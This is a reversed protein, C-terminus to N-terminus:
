GRERREGVDGVHLCLCRWWSMWWRVVRWGGICWVCWQMVYGGFALAWDCIHELGGQWLHHTPDRCHREIEWITCTPDINFTDIYFHSPTHPSSPSTPTTCHMHYPKLNPYHAFPFLPYHGIISHWKDCEM